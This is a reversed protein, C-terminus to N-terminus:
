PASAPLAGGATLLGDSKHEAVVATLWNRYLQVAVDHWVHALRKRANGDPFEELLDHSRQRQARARFADFAVVTEDDFYGRPMEPYRDMTGALFRGVDRRYERLLAAADYEPHGQFFVFSARRRLMFTDAGAHESLSLIEYGAEILEAPDLTNLRSHPLCWSAPLGALLRHDSTRACRYLGSIKEGLPHRQIGDLHLVAAHAALCSWIAPTATENAFEILQTLSQWYAEESLTPTRPEAGTVIFADLEGSCLGDIREYHESVYAQGAEGRILEPFSFIRLQIEYETSAAGLLDRFQHETSQLAADPMNNVLGIVLQARANM